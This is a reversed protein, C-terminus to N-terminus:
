PKAIFEVRDFKLGSNGEGKGPTKKYGFWHVVKGDYWRTRQFSASVRTGAKPVEEENIFYPAEQKNASPNIYPNSEANPDYEFGSRLIGTRPRIPIKATGMIRPMSARQLQVARNQGELHISIFPIWNEPVTNALLYKLKAAEDTTLEEQEILSDLYNLLEAAAKSGDMGTGLLSEIQNEIAWVLNATEDRLFLVEEIPASEQIKPVAPPVLLRTDAPLTSSKNANWSSLNFMGWSQWDDSEGQNAADVFTRQGFVDTVVIGQIQSITGTTMPYPFIFWNNGYMTAYQVVIVKSLDTTDATINGFDIKGDEFEWFRSSPMGAYEAPTPIFSLLDSSILEKRQKANSSRLTNNQVAATEVDFSHWDLRGNFYENAALITNSGQKEPVACHFQYELQRANWANEQQVIEPYLGELWNLFSETAEGIFDKHESEIVLGNVFGPGDAKIARYIELGDPVRGAFAQVYNMMKRNSQLQLSQVESEPDSNDISPVVLPYIGLIAAKYDAAVFDPDSPGPKNQNYANGKLQLTKLWQNGAQIREQYGLMRDQHEVIAELPQDEAYNQVAGDLLKYKVLKNKEILLKAFIPSGTDEGQFEGFQWQRTLFWLPDHVQAQLVRDFDYEKPRPELRNWARFPECTRYDKRSM